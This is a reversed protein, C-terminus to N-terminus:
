PESAGGAPPSLRRGKGLRGLGSLVLTAIRHPDSISFLERNEDDDLGNGLAAAPGNRGYGMLERSLEDRNPPEGGYREFLRLIEDRWKVNAAAAGETMESRARQELLDIVLETCGGLAGVLFLPKRARLSLLPEEVLGPLRGKYGEIVGGICLRAVTSATVRERMHTLARAWAYVRLPSDPPVFGNPEAGLEEATVGLDPCPV